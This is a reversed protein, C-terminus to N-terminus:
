NKVILNSKQKSNFFDAMAKYTEPSKDKMDERRLFYLSCLVVLPDIAKLGSIRLIHSETFDSINQINEFNAFAEIESVDDKFIKLYADIFGYWVVNYYEKPTKEAAEFVDLAMIIVGDEVHTEITHLFQMGPTPFPHKYIFIRDMDGILFDKKDMTLEIPISSILARLDYPIDRQEQAGIAKFDRAEMYLNLRNEFKTKEEGKLSAYFKNNRALFEGLEPDFKIPYKTHWWYDIQPKFLYLLVLVTIPIIMYFSYEFNRVTLSNYGLYILALAFPSAVLHTISHINM